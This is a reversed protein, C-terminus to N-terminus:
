SEGDPSYYHDNVPVLDTFLVYVQDPVRIVENYGISPIELLILQNKIPSISWRGYEDTYTMIKEESVESLDATNIGHTGMVEASVEHGELDVNDLGQIRGTITCNEANAGIAKLPHTPLSEECDPATTTLRYWDEPEGDVDYYTYTHEGPTLFTETVQHWETHPTITRPTENTKTAFQCRVLKFRPNTRATCRIFIYRCDDSKKAKIGKGQANINAVVTDINGGTFTITQLAPSTAAFVLKDGAVINGTYRAHLGTVSRYLNSKTADANAYTFWQVQNPM